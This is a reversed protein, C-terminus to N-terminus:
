EHPERDAKSKARDVLERLPGEVFQNPRWGQMLREILTADLASLAVGAATGLGGGGVADAGLGLLVFLSWRASKAPLKHLWSSRVIAEYYEHILNADDRQAALWERWKRSERLLTLLDPFGVKGRRVAEGIAKADRFVFEQFARRDSEAKNTKRLASNVRHEVLAADRPGVLLESRASAAMALIEHTTAVMGLILAPTLTSHEPPIAKHYIANVAPFDINTEIALRGADEFVDFRLPAPLPYDPASHTLVDRAVSRTLEVDRVDATASSLVALSPRYQEIHEIMRRAIRRARGPKGLREALIGPLVAEIESHQMEVNALTHRERPTGADNTAVVHSVPAYSIKLFGDQLLDSLCEVGVTAALDKLTAHHGFVRVSGYFILAEALQGPDIMAGHGRHTARVISITEFM